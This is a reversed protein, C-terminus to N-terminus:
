SRLTPIYKCYKCHLTVFIAACADDSKCNTIATMYRIYIHLLDNFLRVSGGM